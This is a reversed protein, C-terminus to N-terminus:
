EAALDIMCQMVFEVGSYRMMWEVAACDAARAPFLLPPPPPPELLVRAAAAVVSALFLLLVCVRM